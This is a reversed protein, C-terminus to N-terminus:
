SPSGEPVRRSTSPKLARLLAPYVFALDVVVLVVVIVQVWDLTPPSVLPISRGGISFMRTFISYSAGPTLGESVAYSNRAALDDLVFYLAALAFADFVVLKVYWRVM